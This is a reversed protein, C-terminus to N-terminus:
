KTVQPGIGFHFKNYFYVNHWDKSHPRAKLQNSCWEYREDALQQRLEKEEECVANIIGEEQKLVRQIGKSNIDRPGPPKFHYTQPLAVGADEVVDQWLTGKDDLSTTSDVLYDKVQSTELKNFAGKRGRPNPGSHPPINTVAEVITSPIPINLAQSYLRAYFVGARRPTDAQGELKCLDPPPTFHRARSKRTRIPPM